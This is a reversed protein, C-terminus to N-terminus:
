QEVRRDIDPYGSSVAIGIRAITGNDLVRITLVTEGERGGILSRPLLDLHQRTLALLQALYEDRTASAGAYRAVRPADHPTDTQAVVKASAPTSKPPAPIPPPPKRKPPPAAAISDKPPRPDPPPAPPPVSAAATKPAADSPAPAGQ